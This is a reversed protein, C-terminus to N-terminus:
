NKPEEKAKQEEAEKQKKEMAERMQAEMKARVEPPIDAAPQVKTGEPGSPTVVPAPPMAPAPPPATIELVHIDFVLNANAPIKARPQGREGYAMAGPVFLRRIMGPRADAMAKTWGEILQQGKTYPFPQGREHSSDFMFGNELYGTYDVTVRDGDNGIPATLGPTFDVVVLGGEHRIAKVEPEFRKFTYGEASAPGWVVKGDAGLGRDITTFSDKSFAIESTMESAGGHSTPYPHPTKGKWGNGAKTLEIDLTAVLDDMTFDPMVEPAAWVGVLSNMEGRPRRFELTKLRLKGNIRHLQWLGQRYPLHLADARALEAYLTNSLGAITVPAVSMVVEADSGDAGAHPIAQASKWSGSLLEAVQTMEADAFTAPAKVARAPAAHSHGAHDDQGLAPSFGLALVGAAVVISFVRHSM